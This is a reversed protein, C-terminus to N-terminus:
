ASGHRIEACISCVEAYQFWFGILLYYFSLKWVWLLTACIKVRNLVCRPINGKIDVCVVWEFICEDPKGEVEHAVFASVFNHGRIYNSIAPIKEHEVSCSAIIWVRGQQPVIDPIDVSKVVETTAMIKTNDYEKSNPYNNQLLLNTNMVHPLVDTVDEVELTNSSNDCSVDLIIPKKSSMVPSNTASVEPPIALSKCLKNLLTLESKSLVLDDNCLKGNVM